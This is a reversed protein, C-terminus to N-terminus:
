SEEQLLLGLAGVRRSEEVQDLWMEEKVAKMNLALHRQKRNEM